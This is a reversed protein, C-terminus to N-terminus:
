NKALLKTQHEMVTFLFDVGCIRLKEPLRKERVIKRCVWVIVEPKVKGRKEAMATFVEIIKFAQDEQYNRNEWGAVLVVALEDDYMDQTEVIAVLCKLAYDVLKEVQLCKLLYSSIVPPPTFHYLLSYLLM